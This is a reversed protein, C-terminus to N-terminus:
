APSPWHFATARDFGEDGVVIGSLNGITVNHAFLLNNLLIKKSDIKLSNKKSYFTGKAIGIVNISPDFIIKCSINRRKQRVNLCKGVFEIDWVDFSFVIESDRVELLRNGKKDNLLMNILNIPDDYTLKIVSIGDINIINITSDTRQTM